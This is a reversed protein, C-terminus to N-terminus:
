DIGWDAALDAGVSTLTVPGPSAVSSLEIAGATRLEAFTRRRAGRVIEKDDGGEAVFYEGIRPDYEVAGAKVERLAAVRSDTKNPAESM